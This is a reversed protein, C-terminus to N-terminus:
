MNMKKRNCEECLMQLNDGVTKGGKSWPTIHDGQMKEYAFLKLCMNCIGKQYEYIRRKQSETFASIHLCCEAGSLVFECIGKKNTVDDDMMLDAIRKDLESTDYLNTGYKDYLKGWDIGKMEKRYKPVTLMVWNIM